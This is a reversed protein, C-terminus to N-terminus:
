LNYFLFFGIAQFYFVQGLFLDDMNTEVASYERGEALVIGFPSLASSSRDGDEFTKAVGSVPGKMVCCFAGLLTLSMSM